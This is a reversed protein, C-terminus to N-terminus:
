ETAVIRFSSCYNCSLLRKKCVRIAYASNDIGIWRRKLQEAAILTTGSGAFCDLVLGGPNSSTAMIMKLMELNKETPYSPYQPDKFEWIDQLKKGRAPVDDAYIIKRPNGTSSWEILGQSDIRTLEDPPCRWHRGRPPLMDKWVSGTPGNKTEGPAHVPTTAYRRGFKDIKPFLREIDDKTLRKRPENWIYNKTKSYFLIIDKVNGYARRSFNKPNSKVRTIDNIFNYRGFIEDMLVKVYHGMKSDIHLYISGQESMLERLLILRQRLFELYEAGVLKDEYATKDGGSPSVTATRKVGVKFSGNTAFPPDIYILNVQGAVRPEKLLVQLARLNDGWVLLNSWNELLLGQGHIELQKLRGSSLNHELAGEQVAKHRPSYRSSFYKKQKGVDKAPRRMKEDAM